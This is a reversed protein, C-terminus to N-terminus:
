MTRKVPTSIKTALNYFGVEVYPILQEEGKKFPKTFEKEEYQLDLDGLNTDNITILSAPELTKNIVSGVSSKHTVKILEGDWNSSNIITCSATM